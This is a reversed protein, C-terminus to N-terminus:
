LAPRKKLMTVFAQSAATKNRASRQVLGIPRWMDASEIEVAILSGVKQEEVITTSPVISIGQEIEVARKVTEINDFELSRRIEVKNLKFLRDIAKRTPQDFGFSVFQENQLEQISVSKRAALRHGPPCILILKDKWNSEVTLGKHRTPFAVLGLDASGGTVQEYVQASRLYDIKIEVAPFANRFAQIHRPLEHLGISHVTAIQLRGGIQTQMEQFRGSLSEYARLIEKCTQLFVRGEATVSLSKKGREILAVKFKKELSNIQQSVASQTIRNMEAAKSFSATEVLDCFVRFTEIQM